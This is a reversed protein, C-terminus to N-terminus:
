IPTTSCRWIKDGVYHLNKVARGKKSVKMEDSSMLALGVALVARSEEDRVLVIAGKDFEGRVETIGPVMVDAGNLIRRTAGRDVYVEYPWVLDKHKILRITPVIVDDKVVLALIGDIIYGEIGKKRDRMYEVVRAEKIIRRLDEYPPGISEVLERRDRKSLPYRQM